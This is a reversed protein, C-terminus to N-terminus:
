FGVTWSVHAVNRGVVVSPKFGCDVPLVNNNSTHFTLRGSHQHLVKSQNQKRMYNHPPSGKPLQYKSNVNQSFIMQSCSTTGNLPYTDTLYVCERSFINYCMPLVLETNNWAVTGGGGGGYM